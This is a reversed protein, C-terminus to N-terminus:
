LVLFDWLRTQKGGDHSKSHLEVHTDEFAEIGGGKLAEANYFIIIFPYPSM